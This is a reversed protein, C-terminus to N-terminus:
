DKNTQKMIYDHNIQSLIAKAQPNNISPAM